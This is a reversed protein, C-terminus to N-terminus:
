PLTAAIQRVLEIASRSSPSMQMAEALRKGEVVETKNRQVEDWWAILKPRGHRHLEGGFDEIEVGYVTRDSLLIDTHIDNAVDRTRPKASTDSSWAITGSIYLMDYRADYNVRATRGVLDHIFKGYREQIIAAEM